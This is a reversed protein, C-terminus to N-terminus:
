PDNKITTAQFKTNPGTSKALIEIYDNTDMSVIYASTTFYYESPQKMSVTFASETLNVGNKRFWITINEENFHIKQARIADTRTMLIVPPIINLRSTALNALEDVEDAQIPAPITNSDSIAPDNYKVRRYDRL